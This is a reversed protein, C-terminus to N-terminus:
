NDLFYFNFGEWLFWSQLVFCLLFIRSFHNEGKEQKKFTECHRAANRKSSCRVLYWFSLTQNCFYSHWGTWFHLPFGLNKANSFMVVVVNSRYCGHRFQNVALSKHSGFPQLTFGLSNLVHRVLVTNGQDQDSAKFERIFFKMIKLSEAINRLLLFTFIGINIWLTLAWITVWFKNKVVNKVSQIRM